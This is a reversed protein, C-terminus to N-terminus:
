VLMHSMFIAVVCQQPSNIVSINRDPPFTSREQYYHIIIIIIIIVFFTDLSQHM